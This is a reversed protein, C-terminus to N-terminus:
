ETRCKKVERKKNTFPFNENDNCSDVVQTDEEFDVPPEEQEENQTQEENKIKEIVTTLVLRDGNFVFAPNIFYDGERQYRAIIKNEILETLGRYLVAKSLKKNHVENFDEMVYKDIFIKDKHIAANQMVWCVVNFAKIGASKLDFTLAINSTFLKLFQEDDVQKKTSIYTGKRQGTEIDVIAVNDKNGISSIRVSKNKVSIELSEIFPNEKYRILEKTNKKTM